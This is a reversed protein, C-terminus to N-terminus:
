YLVPRLAGTAASQAVAETFAMYRVGDVFSTRTVQEEGRIANIFEEEVRWGGREGESLEIETLASDGRRGGSLKGGAQQFRLTGESGFLWIESTPGLGAIGSVTMQLIGGGPMDGVVAVHEPVAVARPAGTQADRRMPVFTRTRAMVSSAGPTWRMACEYWIGLTMTNLGSLVRDQRWTIPAERDLFSGGPRFDAVRIDVALLDGLYGEAVRRAIAGDVALTFPGPAIQTALHPHARAAALMMEAQSLDMAMRGETLVHKGAGLAALTVPCHLYPWTGIVIADIGDDAIVDEWTDYVRPIDFQGAVQESSARSRNAVGAIEVGPIARFGPIHRDRAIAGAGVLGIRIPTDAM